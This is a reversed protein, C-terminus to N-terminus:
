SKEKIEERYVPDGLYVNRMALTIYIERETM